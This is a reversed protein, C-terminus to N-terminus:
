LRVSEAPMAQAEGSAFFARQPTELSMNKGCSDGGKTELL